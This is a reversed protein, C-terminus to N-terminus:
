LCLSPVTDEVSRQEFDVNTGSKKLPSLLQSLRDGSRVGESDKEKLQVQTATAEAQVQSNARASQEDNGSLHVLHESPERPKVLERNM